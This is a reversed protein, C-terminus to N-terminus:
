KVKRFLFDGRDGRVYRNRLTDYKLGYFEAWQSITKTEGNYEIWVNSRRNVSQEKATAWRCNEKCYDGNVDIRDISYKNTPREGMDLYFNKFSNVWRDCVKVGRGGYTSYYRDNRNYCRRKMGEWVTYEPIRKTSLKMRCKKCMKYKSRVIGKYPVVVENGCDCKCLWHSDHWEKGTSYYRKIVTLKGYKNGIIHNSRNRSREGALEDHLCGCSKVKGNRIDGACVIVVKGCDCICRWLTKRNKDNPVREICTLRGYRQGSMNICDPM